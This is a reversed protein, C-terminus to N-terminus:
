SSAMESPWPASYPTCRSDAAAGQQRIRETCVEPLYLRMGLLVLLLETLRYGNRAM